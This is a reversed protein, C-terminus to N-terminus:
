NANRQQYWIRDLALLQNKRPCLSVSFRRELPPFPGVGRAGVGYTGQALAPGQCNDGVSADEERGWRDDVMWTLHWRFDFGRATERVCLRM